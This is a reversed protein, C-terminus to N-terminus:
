LDKHLTSSCLAFIYWIGMIREGKETIIGRKNGLNRSEVKTYFSYHNGLSESTLKLMDVTTKRSSM